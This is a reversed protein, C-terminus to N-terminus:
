RQITKNIEIAPKGSEPNMSCHSDKQFGLVLMRRPKFVAKMTEIAIGSKLAFDFHMYIDIYKYCTYIYIYISIIDCIYIYIYLYIYINYIYIYINVHYIYM